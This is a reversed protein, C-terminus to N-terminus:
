SQAVAETASAKPPDVFAAWCVFVLGAEDAFYIRQCDASMSRRAVGLLRLGEHGKQDIWGAIRARDADDLPSTGEASTEVKTCLSLLTEPAGKTLM